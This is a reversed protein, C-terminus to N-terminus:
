FDRRIERLLERGSLEPVVIRRLNWLPHRRDLKEALQIAARYGASWLHQIADASYAGFPYAFLRVPHGLLRRLDRAPRELQTAWDEGGYEPVAKHDYTHAGITMGEDELKRVQARTLWGPKDLVVTMVFFTAVFDHERLVPLAHTYQGASGDDFTLLIPNRPLKAGRAVHDVLAQGGITTYGARDLADMQAAFAKPSVIYTRAQASDAGTPNRIQHYCLVPVDARKAVSAVDTPPAPSPRVSARPAPQPSTKSGGCGGVLLALAALIWGARL